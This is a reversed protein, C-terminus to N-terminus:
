GGRRNNNAMGGKHTTRTLDQVNDPRSHYHRCHNKLCTNLISDKAKGGAVRLTVRGPGYRRDKARNGLSRVVLLIVPAVLKTVRRKPVIMGGSKEKM